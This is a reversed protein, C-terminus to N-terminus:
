KSAPNVRVAGKIPVVLTEYGKYNTKITMSAEYKGPIAPPRITFRITYAKGPKVERMNYTISDDSPTVELIKLSDGRAAIVSIAKEFSQTTGETLRLEHMYVQDPHVEVDNMVQIRLSVQKEPLKDFDTELVLDAFYQRPPLQKKMWTEVKYKKGKELPTIKVGIAKDLIDKEKTKDSWHYGTIHIPTDITSTLVVEDKLEENLYGTLALGKSMDFIRQVNGTLYLIVKENEPDNTKVTFSKKFKGTPLKYGILRVNIKGESGPPIVEDYDAM